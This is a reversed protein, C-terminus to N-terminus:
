VRNGMSRQLCKREQCRELDKRIDLKTMELYQREKKAGAIDRCVSARHYIYNLATGGLLSGVLKGSAVKSTNYM